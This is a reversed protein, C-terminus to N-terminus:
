KLAEDIMAEWADGVPPSGEGRDLGDWFEVDNAAAIMAQTPKRMAEIAACAQATAKKQRIHAYVDETSGFEHREGGEYILQYTSVGDVLSILRMSYGVEIAAIAAGVREIMESM